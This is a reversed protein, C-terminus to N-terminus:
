DVSVPQCSSKSHEREVTNMQEDLKKIAESVAEALTKSPDKLARRYFVLAKEFLNTLANTSNSSSNELRAKLLQRIMPTWMRVWVDAGQSHTVAIDLAIEM